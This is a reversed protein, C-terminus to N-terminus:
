TLRTGRKLWYRRARSWRPEITQSAHYGDTTRFARVQVQGRPTAACAECIESGGRALVM